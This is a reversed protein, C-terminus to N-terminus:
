DIPGATHTSWEGDKSRWSVQVVFEVQDSDGVNDLASQSAGEAGRIAGHALRQHDFCFNVYCPVESTSSLRSTRFPPVSQATGIVRDYATVSVEYAVDDGLNAVYAHRRDTDWRGAQWRVLSQRPKANAASGSQQLTRREYMVVLLLLFAVVPFAVVALLLSGVAMGTGM